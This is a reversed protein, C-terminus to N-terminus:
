TLKFTAKQLLLIGDELLEKSLYELFNYNISEDQSVINVKVPIPEEPKRKRTNDISWEVRVNKNNHIFYGPENTGFHESFIDNILTMLEHLEKGKNIGSKLFGRWADIVQESKEM